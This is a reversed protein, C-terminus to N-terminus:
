KALPMIRDAFHQMRGLTQELTDGQLNVMMHRVGVDAFRKIDDAIQPPTGTLPRRQGDPLTMAQQDNYWNASYAFDM